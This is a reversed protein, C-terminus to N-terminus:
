GAAVREALAALRDLTAAMAKAQKEPFRLLAFM